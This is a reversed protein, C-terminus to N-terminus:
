DVEQGPLKRHNRDPHERKSGRLTKIRHILICQSQPITVRAHPKFSRPSRVVTDKTLLTGCKGTNMLM